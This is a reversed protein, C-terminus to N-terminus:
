IEAPAGIRIVLNKYNEENEGHFLWSLVKAYAVGVKKWIREWNM